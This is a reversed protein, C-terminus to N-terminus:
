KITKNQGRMNMLLRGPKINSMRIKANQWLARRRKKAREVIYEQVGLKSNLLEYTIHAYLYEEFMKNVQMKSEDGGEMGDSFYELICLNGSMDSSFNIVGKSQDITFRPNSNATETNMGFRGGVDFQFVWRGDFFWGDLGNFPSGPNMYISKETGNIRDFDLQSYEPQLINGSEDFLINCDNDQLYAKSSQVQINESLPYLIGDKYMSIRVWGVYDYPLVFRLQDCVDLELVKVQRLADYNLEQIARKAHFVVQFRDENNILKNNGSYMLMYNNVIDDLSIYQYSGWNSENQYYDFPTLYAM